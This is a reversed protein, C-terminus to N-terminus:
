SVLAIYTGCLVTVNIIKTSRTEGAGTESTVFLLPFKSSGQAKQLPTQHLM